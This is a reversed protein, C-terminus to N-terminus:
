PPDSFFTAQAEFLKRVDGRTTQIAGAEVRRAILEGTFLLSLLSPEHLALTDVEGITEGEELIRVRFFVLSSLSVAVSDIKVTYGSRTRLHSEAIPVVHHQAWNVYIVQFLGFFLLFVMAPSVAVAVLLCRANLM